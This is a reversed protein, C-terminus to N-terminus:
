ICLEVVVPADEHYSFEPWSKNLGSSSVVLVVDLSCSGGIVACLEYIFMRRICLKTDCTSM